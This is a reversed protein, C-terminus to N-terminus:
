PKKRPTFARARRAAEARQEGDLRGEVTAARERAWRHGTERSLYLWMLAEVPEAAEIMLALNYQAQPEGYEAAARFLRTAEREDKEIGRGMKIMWGLHDMASVHGLSVARKYWAVAKEDNREVGDGDRYRRGIEVQAEPDDDEARLFLREVETKAAAYKAYWEDLDKPWAFRRASKPHYGKPLRRDFRTYRWEGDGYVEALLTSIEPDFKKLEARTNVDNHDNDNERNTDFWSQTAEAWFERRDTAAYTGKWKELSGRYIKELREDFKADLAMEHIAHAFEHILINESGYPDGPWNLLNEEGCSVAPRAPTAGLGRARRDWYKKPLLDSHEPVSTTLEDFAMVVFRCRSKALAELLDARSGIMKRILFEAELLAFDHVKSSGLIPFGGVDVHKRYHEALKWEQRLQDPVPGVQLAFALLLTM